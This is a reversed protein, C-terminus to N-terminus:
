IDILSHFTEEMGSKKECVARAEDMERIHNLSM